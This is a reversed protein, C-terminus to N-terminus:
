FSTSTHTGPTPCPDGSHSALNVLPRRHHWLPGQSPSPCHARVTSPLWSGPKTWLWILVVVIGNCRQSKSMMRVTLWIRHRTASAQRDPTARRPGPQGHTKTNSTFTVRWGARRLWVAPLEPARCSNAGRCRWATTRLNSTLLGPSTGEQGM